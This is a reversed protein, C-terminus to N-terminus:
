EVPVIRSIKGDSENSFYIYGDPAMHVDRIRGIGELIREEHVYEDGDIEVRSILQSALAGNMINGTWNPYRDGTVFDMGSPAISPTWHLVPQEMGAKATDPTIESGDYNVGHTIEPWGYNNGIQPHNIEDGGRPGHENTWIEGTEPHVAMGQINRHGYSFIEDLGDEGVFPNDDPIRGDDNLRFLSGNSVTIDQATDMDGRDGISFYLYGEGDFAIRSGFHQGANSFVNGTYIEEHDVLEYGDLKAREISTTTGGSGPKSFSIYIWGNEEYDPHLAVDLLGGQGRAVVEPAGSLPESRLQGDEVIRVDGGRETILIKGDPLFAMGWSTSLGEVVDEIYINHRETEIVEGTQDPEPFYFGDPVDVQHDQASPAESSCGAFLLSTFLLLSLIKM